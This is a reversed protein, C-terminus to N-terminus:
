PFDEGFVNPILRHQPDISSSSFKPGVKGAVVNLFKTSSHLCLM